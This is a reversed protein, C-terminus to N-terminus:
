VPYYAVGVVGPGTHVGIVPGVEGLNINGIGTSQKIEELLCKAEELADGHMVILKLKNKETAEKVLEAIKQLSKKRGRVKALTFYKGEHNVSIIPKLDLLSGMTAAVYGIRGGRKLYELTKVVFTVTMDNRVQHIRDLVSSLKNGKKILEAAEQVLFGIGMSISKSDFVEIKLSPFQSAALRITNFTGSLGSSIHISLVENYGEKVLRTFLDMVEGMSPMSTSPVEEGLRSYVSSPEIEIRDLYERERYVVKLPLVFINNAEIYERTLDATSDTVLAIKGAM